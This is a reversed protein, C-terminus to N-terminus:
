GENNHYTEIYIRHVNSAMFISSGVTSFHSFLCITLYGNCEWWIITINHYQSVLIIMLIICIIYMYYMYYFRVEFSYKLFLISLLFSPRWLM